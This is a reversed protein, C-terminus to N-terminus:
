SVDPDAPVVDAVYTSNFGIQCFESSLRTGKTIRVKTAALNPENSNIRDEDDMGCLLSVLSLFHKM